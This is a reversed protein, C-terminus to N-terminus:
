ALRALAREVCARTAWEDHPSAGGTQYVWPRPLAAAASVVTSLLERADSVTSVPQATLTDHYGGAALVGYALALGHREADSVIDLDAYVAAYYFASLARLAKHLDHFNLEEVPESLEHVAYLIEEARTQANGTCHSLLAAQRIVCMVQADMAAQLKRTHRWAEEMWEISQHGLVVGLVRLEPSFAVGRYTVSASVDECAVKLCTVIIAAVMSLVNGDVEYVPANKLWAHTVSLAMALGGWGDVEPESLYRIQIADHGVYCPFMRSRTIAHACRMVHAVIEKYAQCVEETEPPQAPAAALSPEAAGEIPLQKARVSDVPLSPMDATCESCWTWARQLVGILNM